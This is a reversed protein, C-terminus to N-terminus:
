SVLAILSNRFSRLFLLMVLSVLLVAMILDVVVSNVAAITNDTSDDALIFKVNSEKSQDEIWKLKEKVKLIM